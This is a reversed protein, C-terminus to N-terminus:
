SSTTTMPSNGCARACCPRGPSTSAAPPSPRPRPRLGAVRDRGEAAEPAREWHLPVGVPPCVEQVPRGEREILATRLVEHRAVLDDLAQQWATRDLGGRVRWCYWLLYSEGTDSTRDLFWLREQAFSLPLPRDRDVPTM